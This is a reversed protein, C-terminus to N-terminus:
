GRGDAARTRGEISKEILERFREGDEPRMIFCDWHGYRSRYGLVYKVAVLIRQFVNRDHNLHVSTYLENDEADYTFKLTHEDSYCACEFFETRMGGVIRRWWGGWRLEDADM